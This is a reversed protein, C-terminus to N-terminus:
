DIRMKRCKEVDRAIQRQLAERSSFRRSPRLKKIFVVEAKEGYIDKKQLGIINVEVPPHKEGPHFTPRGIGCAGRYLKGAVTITVAYVGEPPVVENTADLNATPFGLSAGRGDGRVIRGTLSYHRGLMRRAASLDGAFARKRIETSSIIGGCCKQAQVRDVTFGFLQGYEKLLAADGKGGKGFRYDFGVVAKIMKLKEVLIGTIFKGAPIAAFSKNFDIVILIDIGAASILEAKKETDTIVAPAQRHTTKMPHTEFTLAISKAELKKADAVTKELIKRHGAHVGDFVGLTVVSSKIKRLSESKLGNLLIM